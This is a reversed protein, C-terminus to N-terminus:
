KDASQSLKHLRDALLTYRVESKDNRIASELAAESGILAVNVQARTVGTYVVNRRLMNSHSESVVMLVTQYESGQSKHVTTCYALDVDKLADASYATEGEGNFQIIAYLAFVTPDDEDPRREIRLVYGIDGNKAYDTNKMQMVKDGTRFEVGHVKIVEEGLKPPNIEAQLALNFSNVNLLTKSRYPNLLIVNDLGYAKVCKLYMRCTREFTEGDSACWIHRFTKAYELKTKGGNILHANTIIPSDAGQRYIHELKVTPVAGSRILDHLINGCGVSPLQDPDGVMVVRAGEPVKELLLHMIQQDVMSTEDVIILNGQLEDVCAEASESGEDCVYQIASHITSAPYGTAESMRRAARGTPALLVPDSTNGYVLKHVYLIAKITTTKGTGPGGTLISLTNQFVCRVADAQKDALTVGSEAQYDQLFKDINNVGERGRSMQYVTSAIEREQEYRRPAYIFGSTVRILKAKFAANIGAECDSQTVGGANRNLLKVMEKCLMKKPLCVHGKTAARELTYGISAIIRDEANPAHGQSLALEDVTLFGFDPVECLRYPVHRIIMEADPGFRDVISKAMKVTVNGRGKFLALVTRVTKTEELKQTLQDVIKQSVGKVILLDEPSNELVHWISEGFTDYIAEAKKKGIRIKLSMLYSVVGKKSTPLIVECYAVSFQKGFKKNQVWEGYLTVHTDATTPIDTGCATFISGDEDSTYKVVNWGDQSYVTYAHVAKISTTAVTETM